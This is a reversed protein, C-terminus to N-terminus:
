SSGRCSPKAVWELIKAQLIGHVSSGPPSRDMPDRLTPCLRLSKACVCTLGLRLSRGSAEQDGTRGSLGMTNGQVAEPPLQYCLNGGGVLFRLVLSSTCAPVAAGPGSRRRAQGSGQGEGSWRGCGRAVVGHHPWPGSSLPSPRPSDGPGTSLQPLGLYPLLLLEHPLLPPTM